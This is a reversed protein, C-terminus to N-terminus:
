AAPCLDDEEDGEVTGQDGPTGAVATDRGGDRPPGAPQKAGAQGSTDFALTGLGSPTLLQMLLAMTLDPDKM